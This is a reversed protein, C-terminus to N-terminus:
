QLMGGIAGAAVAQQPTRGFVTVDGADPPLLGLLMDITTTKGAGNPGLLAVTEGGSITVDLGRVAEIPGHPGRFSKVLGRLEITRAGGAIEGSRTAVSM